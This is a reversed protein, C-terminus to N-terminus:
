HYPNGLLRGAADLLAFDVGWTDIGIGAVAPSGQATYKAIGTKMEQWLRLVDWHLHGLVMVPENSFRHVERLDFRQGDWRGVMVRGSSAGLDIALFDTMETM